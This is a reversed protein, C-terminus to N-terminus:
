FIVKKVPYFAIVELHCYVPYKLHGCIMDEMAWPLFREIQNEDRSDGATVNLKELCRGTRVCIKACYYIWINLPILCCFCFTGLNFDELGEYGPVCLNKSTMNGENQTSNVTIDLGVEVFRRIAERTLVYGPGGSMFGQPIEPNKYKFGLHLPMSSNFSSLLHRMNEM